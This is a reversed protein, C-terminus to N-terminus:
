HCASLPRPAPLRTSVSRWSLLPICRTKPVVNLSSSNSHYYIGTILSNTLLLAFLILRVLVSREPGNWCKTGRNYYQKGYYESSGIEIGDADNWRDFRSPFIM